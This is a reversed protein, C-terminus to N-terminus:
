FAVTTGVSFNEYAGLHQKVEDSYLAGFNLSANPAVRIDISGRPQVWASSLTGRYYDQVYGLEASLTVFHKITWSYGGRVSPDVDNGMGIGALPSGSEKYAPLYVGAGLTIRQNPATWIRANVDTSFGVSPGGASTNWSNFKLGASPMVEVGGPNGFRYSFAPFPVDWSLRDTIRYWLQGGFSVSNSYQGSGVNAGGNALPWYTTGVGVALHLLWHQGPTASWLSLSAAKPDGGGKMALASTGTAELQGPALTVTEGAAVDVEKSYVRGAVVRRVLYRAPPVAIRVARSSPPVEALTIGSALHIVEIMSDPQDIEIASTNQRLSALVIDQRGRLQLDFSPHQPTPALRASDRVTRERAYDYAEELTVDGDGNADAAGLLGSAFYHTFFSGHAEDGEHAAEFGSSSSVLATGETSVNLLDVPDLPPGVTVGKAQTWNGGRCTDLVGVRVRAAMSSLRDRVETVPLAEGHPFLSQGDSHGSYYFLVLADDSASRAVDDLEYLLEAPTPDLLLHVDAPAFHGVRTLVDAMERADEHAFRLATRGPPPADAGVVIGVRRKAPPSEASARSALFLLSSALIFAFALLPLKV